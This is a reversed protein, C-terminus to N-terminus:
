STTEPSKRGPFELVLAQHFPTARWQGQLRRLREHVRAVLSGTLWEPAEHGLARCGAAFEEVFREPDLSSWTDQKAVGQIRVVVQETQMAEPGTAPATMLAEYTEGSALRGYFSAKLGAETEVAYHVLDHLLAGRTELEHSERTGDDRVFEFRHRENTLRTLRILM